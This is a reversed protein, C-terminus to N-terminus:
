DSASALWSPVVKENYLVNLVDDRRGYRPSEDLADLLIYVHHFKLIIDHLYEMLVKAPPVGRRHSNYM